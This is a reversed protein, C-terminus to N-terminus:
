PVDGPHHGDTIWELIRRYDHDDESDFVAGGGHYRRTALPKAILLADIPRDAETSFLVCAQYNHDIEAPWLPEDLFRRSVDGRFRLPAYISLPREPRGHCSPNACREALIPQVDSVFRDRDLWRLPVTGDDPTGCGCGLAAAAIVHAIRM